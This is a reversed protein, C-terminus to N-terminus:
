AAETKQILAAHVESVGEMTDLNASLEAAKAKIMVSAGDMDTAFQKKVAAALAMKVAQLQKAPNQEPAAPPSEEKGALFKGAKSNPNPQKPQADHQPKRGSAANGDDDEESCVGVMASLSYRRAYTLASGVAQPSGDKPTLTLIGEMTEGSEHALITKLSVLTGDTQTPMQVVALGNKSLPERIVSWISALDAYKSKFFPNDADKAAAQMEGQAKALAAALKGVSPTAVTQITADSM